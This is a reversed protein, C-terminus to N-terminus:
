SRTNIAECFTPRMTKFGYSVLGVLVDVHQLAIRQTEFKVPTQVVLAEFERHFYGAVHEGSAHAYLGNKIYVPSGFIQRGQFGNAVVSGPVYDMRVFYDLKLLDTISEPDFVWARGDMPADGENLNEYATILVDETLATAITGGYANASRLANACNIEIVKALGYALKARVADFYKPNTQLDTINDIAIAIDFNQDISINEANQGVHYTTATADFNAVSATIETLRPVVIKNGYRAYKEYTRDYLQGFLLLNEVDALVEQSWVTPIWNALNVATITSTIGVPM